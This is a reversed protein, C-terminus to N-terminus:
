NESLLYPGASEPIDPVWSTGAEGVVECQGELDCRQLARQQNAATVLATIWGDAAFRGSLVSGTAQSGDGGGQLVVQGDDVRAVVFQQYNPKGDAGAFAKGLPGDTVGYGLLHSGDPSFSTFSLPGCLNWVARRSPLDVLRQCGYGPDGPSSGSPSVIARANADDIPGIAGMFTTTGGSRVNWAVSRTQDSFLAYATESVLGVTQWGSAGAQAASLRNVEKGSRDLYLLNGAEDTVLAHSRDAAISVPGRLSPLDRVAQGDPGVVAARAGATILLSQGLAAVRDPRRFPTPLMITRSGERYVGDVVYGVDTTGTAPGTAPKLDAARPSGTSRLTPIATPRTAKSTALPRRVPTSPPPTPLATASTTPQTPGIPLPSSRTTGVVSWTLPVAVALVLGAGLAAVGLERRRNSRNRAIAREALDSVVRVGQGREDLTAKLRPDIDNM